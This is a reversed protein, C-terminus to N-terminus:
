LLTTRRAENGTIHNAHGTNGDFSYPLSFNFRDILNLNVTTILIDGKFNVWLRLQPRQNPGTSNPWRYNCASSDVILGRAKFNVSNPKFIRTEFAWNKWWCYQFSKMRQGLTSLFYPEVLAFTASDFQGQERNLKRAHFARSSRSTLNPYLMKMKSPGGWSVRVQMFLPHTWCASHHLVAFYDVLTPLPKPLMFNPLCIPWFQPNVRWPLAKATSEDSPM